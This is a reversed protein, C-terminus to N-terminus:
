EILRVAMRLEHIHIARIVTTGAVLSADAYSPTFWGRHSYLQALATRLEGIHVAKIPDAAALGPDTFTAASLGNTVRLTNVANRLQTIHAAKVATGAALPDDSFTISSSSLSYVATVTTPLNGTVLACTSTGSCGGGFWGAFVSGPAAAGPTLTLSTSVPFAEACDGGCRIGSPVSTTDAAASGTGGRNLRLMPETGLQGRIEGSSNGATHVNIYHLQGKLDAVQGPTIAFSQDAVSGLTAAPVADFGFLVPGNVGSAAPGHIHAANVNTGLDQFTATASIQDGTPNLVVTALGSGLTIVPPVEGSGGMIGSYRKAPALLLQGRIEGGGFSSTHINFYFLGAKLQDVQTPTITFTQTPIAGSTAGSAAGSFDFLVGANAGVTAAGHIHAATVPSTLGSFNLDVYILTEARNLLVTGTGTGSSSVSPVQQNGNLTASFLVVPALGIQGRIEGDPFSGTHINFYFQGAKLQAVQGPTIAFAQTPMSGATAAPVGSFNFLVGANAGAAAPGHIHAAMAASSLGTFSLDVTIQTETANLLVIGAGTATTAAAPVQQLANLRASYREPPAAIIQGRIEGGGFAATHINFYYQGTKLENVQTSSVSIVQAPMTGATAAPVVGSFDFLVGANVGVAAAGHIHAASPIGTLDQFSLNVTIENEAANLVVTGIGRAVATVGPVQQAGTLIAQFRQDAAVTESWALIFFGVILTVSRRSSM